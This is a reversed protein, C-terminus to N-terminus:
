RVAAADNQYNTQIIWKEPDAEVRRVPRPTVATVSVEANAGVDVRQVVRENNDMVFAVEVPMVGTGLNRITATTRFGGEAPVSSAQPITYDPLVREMVWEQFFWALDRGAVESSVEQFDGVRVSRSRFRTAYTQLIRRFNEDGVVFRLMHLVLSGKSYRIGGDQSANIRTYASLPRDRGAVRAYWQRNEDLERLFAARGMVSEVTMLGLYEAFGESLWIYAIGRGSTQAPFYTHAAEHAMLLLRYSDRNLGGQGGTFAEETILMLGPYGIGLLGRGFPASMVSLRDFPFPYLLTSYFEAAKQTFDALQDTHRDFQPKVLMTLLVRGAQKELVRFGRGGALGIYPLPEGTEWQYTQTGGAESRTLRGTSAIQYGSPITITSKIPARNVGFDGFPSVLEPYLDGSALLILDDWVYWPTGEYEVTLTGTANPQLPPEFSLNIDNGSRRSTMPLGSVGTVRLDGDLFLRASRVPTPSTVLIQLVAKGKLGGFRLIRCQPTCDVQYPVPRLDAAVEVARFVVDELIVEQSPAAAPFVGVALVLVLLALGVLRFRSWTM